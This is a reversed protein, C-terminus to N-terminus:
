AAAMQGSSQEGEQALLQKEYAKVFPYYIVLATTALLLCLLGSGLAWNASWAAGIPAPTTWPVLTVAADVVNWRIAFFAITTNIVPGLVFPIFMTPNMVIPMGFIVPENINFLGPAVSVKGITKLHISKSRMLLFPLLLTAGSGGIVVYFAHFAETYALAPEVGAALAAQNATLNTLWFPTMIGSILSSGHVGAFWLLHLLLVAFVISFYSDSASVLPRFIALILEPIQLGWQAEVFLSLPYLTVIVAVIPTLCDFSQAISQPVQEPLKITWGKAQLFRQIEVAYIACFIGTFIGTGGMFAAPLAGDTMPSSVLLFSMLALMISPFNAMQYRTALSSAVGGTIFVTMIGMTMNFPTLIENQYTKAVNMWAQAFGNTTNADFPPFAFALLCSGVILFPIAAIFGDRIAVIHPQTGVRGAVPAIYRDIFGAVNDTFKKM